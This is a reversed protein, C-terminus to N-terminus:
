GPKVCFFPSSNLFNSSSLFGNPNEGKGTDYSLISDQHAGKYLTISLFYEGVPTRGKCKNLKCYDFVEIATPLRMKNKQCIANADLVNKVEDHREFKIKLGSKYVLVDGSVQAGNTVNTVVKQTLFVDDVKLASADQTNEADKFGDPLDCVPKPKSMGFLGSGNAIAYANYPLSVKPCAGVTSDGKSMEGSDATKTPGCALITTVAVALGLIASAKTVRVQNSLVTGLM